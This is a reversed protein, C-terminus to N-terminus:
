YFHCINLLFIETFGFLRNELCRAVGIGDSMLQTGGNKLFLIHCKVHLTETKVLFLFNETFFKLLFRSFLQNELCKAVGIGDSM